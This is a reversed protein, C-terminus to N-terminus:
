SDEDDHQADQCPPYRVMTVQNGQENYVVEDMFNRMLSLGRGTEQELASPDGPEPVTAVDFGPGEDRVLFRAEEPSVQADVHIRRDQYPSERRRREVLDFDEGLVLNERGKQIEPVSIELNGRYLANALAERLAVGVQLRESLTGFEMGTTMQQVLEVLPDILEPDNELEFTAGSLCVFLDHTQREARAQALVEAVVCVLKEALQSKPVYSAAGQTLAQVALEESGHATTLVVPIAAHRAHIAGVLELGDMEPMQLDTVVLDPVAEQIRTLAEIGNQSSHTTWRPQKQLLGEILQRDVASDDVVLIHTM